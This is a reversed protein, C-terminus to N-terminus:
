QQPPYSYTPPYSTAPYPYPQGNYYYYTSTSASQNYDQVRDYRRATQLAQSNDYPKNGQLYRSRDDSDRDSFRPTNANEYQRNIRGSRQGRDALENWEEQPQEPYYPSEQEAHCITFLCLWPGLWLISGKM